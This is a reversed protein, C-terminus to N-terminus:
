TWGMASACASPREGNASQGGQLGEGSLGAQEGRPGGTDGARRQTKGCIAGHARLRGPHEADKSDGQRGYREEREAMMSGSALYLAQTHGSAALDM